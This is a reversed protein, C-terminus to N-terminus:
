RLPLRTWSTIDSIVLDSLSSSMASKDPQYADIFISMRSFGQNMPNPSGPQRRM